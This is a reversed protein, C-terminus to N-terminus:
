TIKEHPSFQYFRSNVFNISSSETLLNMVRLYLYKVQSLRFLAQNFRLIDNNPLM